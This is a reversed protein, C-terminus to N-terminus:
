LISMPKAIIKPPIKKMEKLAMKTKNSCKMPTLISMPKAIIKPPIKKMDKLAMKTPSKSNHILSSTIRQLGFPLGPHGVSVKPESSVSKDSKHPIHFTPMEKSELSSKANLKNYSQKQPDKEFFQFNPKPVRLPTVLSPKPKPLVNQTKPIINQAKVVEKWDKPKRTLNPEPNLSKSKIKVTVDPSFARM